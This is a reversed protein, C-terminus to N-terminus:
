SAAVGGLEDLTLRKGVTCTHVAYFFKCFGHFNNERSFNVSYNNHM